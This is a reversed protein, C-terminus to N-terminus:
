CKLVKFIFVVLFFLWFYSFFRIKHRKLKQDRRKAISLCAFWFIFLMIDVRKRKVHTWFCATNGVNLSNEAVLNNSLLLQTVSEAPSVVCLQWCCRCSYRLDPTSRGCHRLPVDVRSAPLPVCLPQSQSSSSTVM